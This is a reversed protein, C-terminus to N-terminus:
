QILDERESVDLELENTDSDFVASNIIVKDLSFEERIKDGLGATVVDSNLYNIMGVGNIPYELIHSPSAILLFFKNQEKSKNIELDLDLLPRVEFKTGNEEMITNFRFALYKDSNSYTELPNSLNRFLNYGQEFFGGVLDFLEMTNLFYGDLAIKTAPLSILDGTNNFFDIKIWINKLNPSYKIVFGINGSNLVSESFPTDHHLSYVLDDTDVDSLLLPALFSPTEGVLKLEGLEINTM